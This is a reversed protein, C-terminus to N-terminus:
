YCDRQNDKQGTIYLIRNKLAEKNIDIVMSDLINYLYSLKLTTGYLEYAIRAAKLINVKKGRSDFMLSSLSKSTAKFANNYDYSPALGILSNDSARFEFAWNKMHRDDNLIIGDLIIMNSYPTSLFKCCYDQPSMKYISFYESLMFATEWNIDETNYIKTKTCDIGSLKVYEYHVTSAGLLEAIFGAFIENKIEINSGAKYLYIGDNERIFCKPFTGQGTYEASIEKDTITFGDDGRLAVLYMAKSFSNRFLSIDEYKVNNIEKDSAIWYNDNISLGHTLYLLEIEQNDRSLGITKYIKDANKRSLPLARHILWKNVKSNTLNKLKLANPCMEWDLIIATEIEIVPINKNM